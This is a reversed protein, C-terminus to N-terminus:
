SKVQEYVANLVLEINNAVTYTLNNMSTPLNPLSGDDAIQEKLVAINNLYREMESETPIDWMGWDTKTLLGLGLIDSMEAVAREVRNLDSYNYAGKTAETALIETYPVYEHRTVGNELMVGKFVARDGVSVADAMAVYIYAALFKRNNTNPMVSTDFTISGATLLDVGAYEFGNEDHWYMAIHPTGNEAEITDASLTLIKNEFDSANGIISVSFLYSGNVMATAVIEESRYKLSVVDSYAPGCAFLNVGEAELPNGLWATREETTMRSWGKNSLEKRYYVNRQTRDTILGKM